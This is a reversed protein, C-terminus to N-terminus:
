DLRAGSGLDIWPGEAPALRLLQASDVIHRNWITTATSAAILNQNAAEALLIAVFQDLRGLTERPVNLEEKLWQRADDETM